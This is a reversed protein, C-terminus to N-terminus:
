NTQTNESDCTEYRALKMQNIIPNHNVGGGIRINHKTEKMLYSIGVATKNNRNLILAEEGGKARLTPMPLTNLLQPSHANLLAAAGRGEKEAQPQM